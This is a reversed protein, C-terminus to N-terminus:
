PASTDCLGNGMFGLRKPGIQSNYIKKSTKLLKFMGVKQRFILLASSLALHSLFFVFVYL